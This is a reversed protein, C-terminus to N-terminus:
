GSRCLSKHFLSCVSFYIENVAKVSFVTHVGFYLRFEMRNSTPAYITYYLILENGEDLIPHLVEARSIIVHHDSQFGVVEAEVKAESLNRDCAAM